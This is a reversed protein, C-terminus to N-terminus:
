FLHDTSNTDEYVNNSWHKSCVVVTDGDSLASDFVVSSGSTKTVGSTKLVGNHYVDAFNATYTLSQAGDDNGTVTTPTGSITYTFVKEADQLEKMRRNYAAAWQEDEHDHVIGFAITLKLSTADGRSDNVVEWAIQTACEDFITLTADEFFFAKGETINSFTTLATSGDYPQSYITTKKNHVGFTNDSNTM